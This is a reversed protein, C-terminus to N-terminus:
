FDRDWEVIIKKQQIDVKKIFIDKRFPILYERSGKISLVEQKGVEILHDVKGFYYGESDYVDCDILDAYYYQHEPLPPLTSKLM